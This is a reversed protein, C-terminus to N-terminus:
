FRVIDQLNRQPPTMSDPFYESLDKYLQGRRGSIERSYFRVSKKKGAKEEGGEIGEMRNSGARGETLSERGEILSQRGERMHSTERGEEEEEEEQEHEEETEKIPNFSLKRQDIVPPTEPERFRVLSGGNYVIKKVEPPLPGDGQQPIPKYAIMTIPVSATNIVSDQFKVPQGKHWMMTTEEEKRKKWELHNSYVHYFIISVSIVFFSLMVFFIVLGTKEEKVEVDQYSSKYPIKELADPLWSGHDTAVSINLSPDIRPRAMTDFGACQASRVGGPASVHVHESGSKEFLMYEALPKMSAGAGGSTSGPGPGSGPDTSNTGPSPTPKPTKGAISFAPPDNLFPKNVDLFVNSLCGTYNKYVDFRRDKTLIGGIHVENAGENSNTEQPGGSISLGPIQVLVVPERDILLTAVNGQRKYYVSHRAGNLYNMNTLHASYAGGDGERDEEFILHGQENLALLLYYSRKTETQVLLLAMSREKKDNSSFALQVKISHVPGELTYKRTIVSDGGFDAGKEQDCFEGYYSTHECNCSSKEGRGFGEICVGKNKCPQDDCKMKCGNMLGLRDNESSNRGSTNFLDIVNDGIKLGRMCGVYGTVAHGPKVLLNDPEFGAINVQFYDTPPAPPRQPSMVELEPNVWPKNSYTPLLQIGYPVSNNRDNVYLITENPHRILALQVSIGSSLDPYEVTVNYLTNGFNFLFVVRVGNQIFLHVFNNLHDNAYVVLSNLDYTRINVLINRDLLDYLPSSRSSRHRPLSSLNNAGGGVLLSGGLPLFNHFIFASSNIFTVGQLNINTECYTGNYAWPNECVCQFTSWLERCYAGNKCPNPDCSPQCDKIIESLHVSMYNYIDLIEGNVVLGRFCGILGVQLDSDRLIDETAGGIFMSGEFPGFEEDSALDVMSWETNVMVRVHHENYDIWIKQWEGSNLKRHSKVVVSRLNGKNLTFKFTLVYDSQLAVMFSPYNARIPPQYLLIAKEGTTRFSFAIDGKRWGPVEIYSQSTTFTVVYKQTNTEVCELPGLTIRAVSKDVLDKQQIFVMETIGLSHPTKFHGEDSLWKALSADCNCSQDPNVCTRNVACECSGRKVDGVYDVSQNAASTFWTASHLDLPAQHCEYKIRQSCYLSHSILESLMEQSFERYKISIKFDGIESPRVDTQDPLNHDVITKTSDDQFECRVRAPPFKGNGDIDILYVNSETVGLLALEECTKRYRAFHCNKGMYGDTCDCKVKEDKISCKGDHECANPKKCPDVLQCNDLSVQRFSRSISRPEVPVSNIIISRMCGVLGFSKARQFGTGVIIRQGLIFKGIYSFDTHKSDVIVSVNGDSYSLEVLHWGGKTEYKVSLSSTQSIQEATSSTALPSPLLVSPVPLATSSTAPSPNYSISTNIVLDFKIEYNIDRLEWFGIVAGQGNMIEGSALIGVSRNSKFEMGLQLWESNNLRWEFHASPYAFTIPITQVPAEFLEPDLAGIYHVRPSRRALEALISIDNYFVYKLSGVFSNHSKLGKKKNLEPGGGIYIEPDIYLHIASGNNSYHVSTKLDDLSINVVNDNHTITLNYWKDNTVNNGLKRLTPPAGTGLDLEIVVSQNVLSVAVHHHRPSEGSAYFLASNDFRTKFQVSIRNHSSHVRDKWDYVRYSVYSAGRLTLVTATYIDCLEGEYPTGFCDCSLREYHNVCHSGYFCLNEPTRCKDICGEEVHDHKTAILPKIPLLDSAAKGASLVMDKICGIFSEIIYKVGHLKEEPSLGGILVVSTLDSTVGYNTNQNLGTIVTETTINDVRAILKAGHVNIRVMVSHWKDRNLGEGVTVSTSHKGFVHVVKLQGKEVIVYLAYPDLGEPRDKVSHYVLLGHPLRTRFQFSIERCLRLQFTPIRNGDLQIFANTQAMMFTTQRGTEAFTLEIGRAGVPVPLLVPGAHSDTAAAAPATSDNKSAAPLRSKNSKASASTSESVKPELPVKACTRRCEEETEFVNQGDCGGYSFIQCTRSTVNYFWRHSYETCPGRSFPALCALFSNTDESSVSEVLFVVTTLFFVSYKYRSCGLM